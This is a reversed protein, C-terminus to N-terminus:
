FSWFRISNSEIELWGVILHNGIQDVAFSMRRISGSGSSDFVLLTCVNRTEALHERCRNLGSRNLKGQRYLLLIIWIGIVFELFWDGISLHTFYKEIRRFLTRPLDIKVARLHSITAYPYLTRRRQSNKAMIINHMKDSRYNMEFNARNRTKQGDVGTRGRIQIDGRNHRADNTRMEFWRIGCWFSFHTLKRTAELLVTWQYCLRYNGSLSASIQAMCLTLDKSYIRSLIM